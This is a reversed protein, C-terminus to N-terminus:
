GFRALLRAAAPEAQAVPPEVPAAAVLDEYLATDAEAKATRCVLVHRLSAM